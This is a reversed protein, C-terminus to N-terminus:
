YETPVSKSSTLQVLIDMVTDLNAMKQKHITTTSEKIELDHAIIADLQELTQDFQNSIIEENKSMLQQITDETRHKM